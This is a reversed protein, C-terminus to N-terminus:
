SAGPAAIRGPSDSLESLAANARALVVARPPSALAAPIARAHTTPTSSCACRSTATQEIPRSSSVATRRSRWCSPCAACGAGPKHFPRNPPTQRHDGRRSASLQPFRGKRCRPSRAERHECRWPNCFDQAADGSAAPILGFRCRFNQVGIARLLLTAGDSPRDGSTMPNPASPDDLREANNRGGRDGSLRNRQDHQM